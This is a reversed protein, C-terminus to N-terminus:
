ARRRSTKRTRPKRRPVARKRAVPRAMRRAAVGGPRAAKMAVPTLTYAPLIGQDYLLGYVIDQETKHGPQLVNNRLWEAAHSIGRGLDVDVDASYCPESRGGETGLMEPERAFSVQVNGEVFLQHKWSDPHAGLWAADERLDHGAAGGFDVSLQILQKAEAVLYVFVRDSMVRRIGRVFSLLSTTGLYTARLKAELNLVAMKEALGLALYEAQPLGNASTFPSGLRQLAQWGEDLDPSAFPKPVLLLRLVTDDREIRGSGAARLFDNRSILHWAPRHRAATVALPYVQGSDFPLDLQIEVTSKARQRLLVRGDLPDSVTLTLSGDTWLTRNGAYVILTVTKRVATESVAAHHESRARAM